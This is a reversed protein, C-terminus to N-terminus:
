EKSQEARVWTEAFYLRAIRADIGPILLRLVTRTAWALPTLTLYALDALLPHTLRRAVRPGATDYVRRMARHVGPCVARIALEGAKLTQLQRNIPFSRGDTLTVRRSRVLRTHGRAAATAIYCHPPETPLTQYQRLALLISASWAALLGAASGFLGLMFGRGPRDLAHTRWVRVGTWLYVLLFLAPSLAISGGIPLGLMGGLVGGWEGTIIAVVMTAAIGLAATGLAVGWIIRAATRNMLPLRLTRPVALGPAAGVSLAIVLAVIAVLVSEYGGIGLLVTYQFGMVIGVILGLQAVVQRGFRDPKICVLLMSAMAWLLFPYFPRSAPGGILLGVYDEFEGSQWEAFLTGYGDAADAEMLIFPAFPLVVGLLICVIRSLLPFRNLTFVRMLRAHDERTKAIPQGCEPCAGGEPQMRLNYRCASCALDTDIIPRPQPAPEVAPTAAAPTPNDVSEM